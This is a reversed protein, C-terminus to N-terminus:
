YQMLLKFSLYDRGANNPYRQQAPNLDEKFSIDEYHKSPQLYKNLNPALPSTAKQPNTLSPLFCEVSLGTQTLLNFYNESLM